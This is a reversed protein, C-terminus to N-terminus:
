GLEGAGLQAYQEFLEFGDLPQGEAAAHTRADKLKGFLDDIRSYLQKQLGCILREATGCELAM